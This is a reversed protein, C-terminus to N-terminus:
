FAEKGREEKREWCGSVSVLKGGEKGEGSLSLLNPGDMIEPGKKREETPRNIFFPYLV